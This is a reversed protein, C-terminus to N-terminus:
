TLSLMHLDRQDDFVALGRLIADDMVCQGRNGFRQAM